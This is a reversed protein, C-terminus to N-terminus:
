QDKNVMELGLAIFSNGEIRVAISAYESGPKRSLVTESKMDTLIYEKNGVLSLPKIVLDTSTSLYNAASILYGTRGTKMSIDMSRNAGYVDFPRQIDYGALADDIIDRILDPCISVANQASMTVVYTKGEGYSNSLVSASGDPFSAIMDGGAPVWASSVVQAFSWSQGKHTRMGPNVVSIREYKHSAQIPILERAGWLKERDFRDGYPIRPGFAIVVGGRKVFDEIMESDTEQMGSIDPLIIIYKNKLLYDIQEPNKNMPYFPLIEEGKKPVFPIVDYNIGLQRFADLAPTICSLWREICWDSYPIYVALHSPETTITNKILNYAKLGDSIARTATATEEPLNAQNFYVCSFFGFFSIGDPGYASAASPFQNFINDYGTLYANSVRNEFYGMFEVHSLTIKETTRTAGASLSTIDRVRCNPYMQRNDPRYSTMIPAQYNMIDLDDIAALYGALLPDDINPSCMTLIGRGHSKVSKCFERIYGAYYTGSGEQYSYFGSLSPHHGYKGWLEEIIASMSHMYDTNPLDPDSLDWSVSILSPLGLSDTINLMMEMRDKDPSASKKCVESPWVARTEFTGGWVKEAGINAHLVVLNGGLDTFQRIYDNMAPRCGSDPFNIMIAYDAIVNGVIYSAKAIVKGTNHGTVATITRFGDSTNMDPGIKVHFTSSQANQGEAVLEKTGAAPVSITLMLDNAKIKRSSEVTVLVSEGSLIRKADIKIVLNEASEKGNGTCSTFFFLIIVTYFVSKLIPLQRIQEKM